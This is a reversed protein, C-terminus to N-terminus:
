NDPNVIEGGSRSGMGQWVFLSTNDSFFRVSGDALSANVGGTHYGRAAAFLSAYASSSVCPMGDPLFNRCGWVADPVASNPGTQASFTNGGMTGYAWCGRSDQYSPGTASPSRYKVESIALTNSTGDAIETIRIKSNNGFIGGISPDSTSAVGYGGKGYCAAYNGRALHEMGTGNAMLEDTFPHSPCDMMVLHSDGVPTAAYTANGFWDVVEPRETRIKEFNQYLGPQEIYPLLFCIWPGGIGVAGSGNRGNPDDPNASLNVTGPPFKKYTSEYNHLALTLQKLNNSCQMRAAAERVKQVAPVLLAILIAIIAIVVLLEILTFAWRIRSRLM